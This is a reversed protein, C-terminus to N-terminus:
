AFSRDFIEPVPGSGTAPIQGARGVWPAEESGVWEGRSALTGFAKVRPRLERFLLRDAEREVTKVVYPTGFYVVGAVESHMREAHQNFIVSYRGLTKTVLEIEVLERVGGRIAVGDAQHDRGGSTARDREWSYGRALYRASIRAVAIEHRVTQRFLDPGARGVARFTPWVISGDMYQPRGREVFGINEMRVVWRQARRLTIPGALFEDNLAGLAWQIGDLDAMKVVQLWDIMRQDRGTLQVMDRESGEPRNARNKEKRKRKKKGTRDGVWV